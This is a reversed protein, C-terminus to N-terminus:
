YRLTWQVSSVIACDAPLTELPTVLQTDGLDPRSFDLQDWLLRDSTPTSM